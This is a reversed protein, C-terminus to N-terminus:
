INVLGMELALLCLVNNVHRYGTRASYNLKFAAGEVTYSKKWYVLDILQRDTDDLQGIVRDIAQISRETTLIYPNTAIKIGIKETPKSTSGSQIGGTWSYSATASPIMDNKYQELQQRDEHYHELQWEVFGKVKPTLDFKYKSL